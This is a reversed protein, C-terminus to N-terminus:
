KVGLRHTGNLREAAKNKVYAAVTAIAVTVMPRYSEDINFTDIVAPATIVGVTAQIATWVVREVLGKVRDSLNSM